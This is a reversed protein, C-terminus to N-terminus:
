MNSKTAAECQSLPASLDITNSLMQPRPRLRAVNREHAETVAAVQKHTGGGGGCRCNLPADPNAARELSAGGEIVCHITRMSEPQSILPCVKACLCVCMCVASLSVFVDVCRGKKDSSLSKKKGFGM